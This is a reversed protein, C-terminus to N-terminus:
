LCRLLQQRREGLLFARLQQFHHVPHDRGALGVVVPACGPAPQLRGSCRACAGAQGISAARCRTWQESSPTREMQYGNWKIAAPKIDPEGWTWDVADPRNSTREILCGASRCGDWEVGLGNSAWGTRSGTREVGSGNPTRDPRCRGMRRGPRNTLTSKILISMTYARM